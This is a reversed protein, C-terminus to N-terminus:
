IKREVLIPESRLTNRHSFNRVMLRQLLSFDADLTTMARIM